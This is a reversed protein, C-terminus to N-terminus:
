ADSEVKSFRPVSVGDVIVNDCFMNLPRVWYAVDSAYLPRYIVVNEETETHKGVGIVEYRNGKYHEYVGAKLRLDNMNM